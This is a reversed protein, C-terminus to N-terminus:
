RRSPRCGCWRLESQALLQGPQQSDNRIANESRVVREAACGPAAAACSAVCQQLAGANLLAEAQEHSPAVATAIANIVLREPCRRQQNSSRMESLLWGPAGAMNGAVASASASPQALAQPAGVEQPMREAGAPWSKGLWLLLILLGITLLLPWDQRLEKM